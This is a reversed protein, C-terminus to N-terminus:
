IKLETLKGDKAFVPLVDIPAEVTIERGGEYIIGDHLNRWKGARFTLSHTTERVKLLSDSCGSSGPGFMYTDDIEWAKPDDPFEYFLPRMLPDGNEHAEAMLQRVYPRM